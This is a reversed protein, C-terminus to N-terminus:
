NYKKIMGARDLKGNSNKPLSNLIYIKRPIMYLSLFSQLDKRIQNDSKPKVLSIIAILYNKYDKSKKEFVIADKIYELKRFNAEVDPIEIRYGNIKVMKDSRGKCIYISNIKKVKDGTFFINEKRFIFKNKNLDKNVYGQTIMPGSVILQNKKVKASVSGFPKGIPVLNYKKYKILDQKSCQHYFVWNGMETGGYCNFIQKFKTKKYLFELFNLYFPEGTIILNNGSLKKKSKNLIEMIRGFTSPVAVLTNINNKKYHDLLYFNDSKTLSPSITSRFYLAPFFIDFFISFATDYYDGFILNKINNKYLYKKQEYVDSIINRHSVRIGKPDGTSGSTFYIFATSNIDLNKIENIVSVKINSNIKIDKFKLCRIKKKLFRIIEPNCNDHICLDPNIQQLINKIKDLPLNISLPVWTNGSILIPFISSYMEFSKNSFTLIIKHRLNNKKIFQLIKLSYIFSDLYSYSKSYYNFFNSNKKLNKLITYYYKKYYIM